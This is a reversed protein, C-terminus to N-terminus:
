TGFGYNSIGLLGAALMTLATGSTSTFDAFWMLTFNRRRFVALPSLRSAEVLSTM